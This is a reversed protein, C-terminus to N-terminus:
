VEARQPVNNNILPTLRRSAHQYRHVIPWFDEEVPVNKLAQNIQEALEYDEHNWTVTMQVGSGHELIDELMIKGDMIHIIARYLYFEPKSLFQRFDPHHDPLTIRPCLRDLLVSLRNLDRYIWWGTVSGLGSFAQSYVRNSFFAVAWLLATLVLLFKSLEVMWSSGLPSWVLSLVLLIKVFFYVGGSIATLAILWVRVQMLRVKELRYYRGNIIAVILCMSMAFTFMMGMFVGEGWTDPIHHDRWQPIRAIFLSYMLVLGSLTLGLFADICYQLRRGFPNPQSRIASRTMFYLSLPVSAYAILRSFNNAIFRDFSDAFVGVLFTMTVAFFLVALWISLATPDTKRIGAKLVSRTKSVAM